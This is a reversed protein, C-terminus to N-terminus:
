GGHVSARGASFRSKHRNKLGSIGGAEAYVALIEDVTLGQTQLIQILEGELVDRLPGADMETLLKLSRDLNAEALGLFAEKKEVLIIKKIKDSLQSNIPNQALSVMIEQSKEHAEPFRNTQAFYCLLDIAAMRELVCRPQELLINKKNDIEMLDASGSLIGQLRWIGELGHIAYFQESKRKLDFDYRNKDVVLHSLFDNVEQRSTDLVLKKKNQRKQSVDLNLNNGLNKIGEIFYHKDQHDLVSIEDDSYRLVVSVCVCVCICVAFFLNMKYRYMINM